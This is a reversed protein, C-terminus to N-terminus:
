SDVRPLYTTWGAVLIVLFCFCLPLSLVFACSGHTACCGTGPWDRRQAGDWDVSGHQKKIDRRQRSAASGRKGRGEERKPMAHCTEKARRMGGTPSYTSLGAVMCGVGPLRTPRSSLLYTFYQIFLYCLLPGFSCFCGCLRPPMYTHVCTHINPPIRRLWETGDHLLCDEEREPCFGFPFHSAPGM